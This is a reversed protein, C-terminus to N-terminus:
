DERYRELEFPHDGFPIWRRASSTVIYRCPRMMTRHQDCTLSDMEQCLSKIRDIKVWSMEPELKLDEPKTALLLLLLLLLPLLLPLLLLLLLLLLSGGAEDGPLAAGERGADPRRGASSPEPISM